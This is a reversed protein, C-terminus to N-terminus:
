RNALRPDRGAPQSSPRPSAAGVPSQTAIRRSSRKAGQRSEFRRDSVGGGEAGEAPISPPPRDRAGRRDVMWLREEVPRGRPKRAASLKVQLRGGVSKREASSGGAEPA